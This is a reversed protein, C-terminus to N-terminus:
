QLWAILEGALCLNKQEEGELNVIRITGDASYAIEAGDPSWVPNTLFTFGKYDTLQKKDGNLSVAFLNAADASEFSEYLLWYSDPSFSFISASYFGETGQAIEDISGDNLSLMYVQTTQNDDSEIWAFIEGNKSWRIYDYSYRFHTDTIPSSSGDTPDFLWINQGSEDQKIFAILNKALNWGILYIREGSNRKVLQVFSQSVDNVEEWLYIGRHANFILSNGNSSWAPSTEGFPLSLLQMPNKNVSDTDPLDDAHNTISQLDNTLLNFLYLQEGLNFRETSLGTTIVLNNSDPSLVSGGFNFAQTIDSAEYSLVKRPDITALTSTEGNMPNCSVINLQETLQAVILSAGGGIPTTTPSPV